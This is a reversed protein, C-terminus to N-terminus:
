QLLDKNIFPILKKLAKLRHNVAHHEESTLEDYYKSYQSVIFLARYPFGRKALGSPSLAIHGDLSESISKSFGTIPNHYYLCVTFKATRKEIAVGDLRELTFQIMESDTADRGLWRKSHVGPAGNLIDIEIGGDDAITPLKSLSSFYDAKLKANDLFTKGTEEPDNKIKLDDLFLLKISASLGSSFGFKLEQKKAPNHTAILLNQIQTM